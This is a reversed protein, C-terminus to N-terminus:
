IGPAGMSDRAALRSRSSDHALGEGPAHGGGFAHRSPAGRARSARTLCFSSETSLSLRGWACRSSRRAMAPSHTESSSSPSICTRPAPKANPARNRVPPAALRSPRQTCTRSARPTGDRAIREYRSPQRANKRERETRPAAQGVQKDESRGCDAGTEHSRHRRGVQRQQERLDPIRRRQDPQGHHHVRRRAEGHREQDPPPAIPAIGRAVASPRENGAPAHEGCTAQSGDCKAIAARKEHEREGPRDGVDAHVHDRRRM